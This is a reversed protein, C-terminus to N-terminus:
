LSKEGASNGLMLMIINKGKLKRDECIPIKIKIVIYMNTILSVKMAKTISINVGNHSSIM